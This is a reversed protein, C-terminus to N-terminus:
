FVFLNGKDGTAATFDGRWEISVGVFLDIIIFSNVHILQKFSAQQLSKTPKIVQKSIVYCSM